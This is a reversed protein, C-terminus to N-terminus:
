GYKITMRSKNCILIMWIIELMELNLTCMGPWINSNCKFYVFFFLVRTIVIYNGSMLNTKQRKAGPPLLFHPLAADSTQIFLPKKKKCNLVNKNITNCNNDNSLHDGHTSM